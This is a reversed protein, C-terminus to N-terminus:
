PTLDSFILSYVLTLSPATISVLSQIEPITGYCASRAYLEQDNGDVVIPPFMTDLSLVDSGLVTRLIQPLTNQNIKSLVENMYGPPEEYPMLALSQLIQGVQM